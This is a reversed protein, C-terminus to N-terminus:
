QNTQPLYLKILEGWLAPKVDPGAYIGSEGGQLYLTRAKRSFGEATYDIHSPDDTHSCSVLPSWESDGLKSQQDAVPRRDSIPEKHYRLEHTM